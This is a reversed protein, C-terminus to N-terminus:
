RRMRQAKKKEEDIKHTKMECQSHVNKRENEIGVVRRRGPIEAALVNLLNSANSKFSSSFFIALMTDLASQRLNNNVM